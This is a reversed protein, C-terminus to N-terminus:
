LFVRFVFDVHIFPRHCWILASCTLHLGFLAAIYLPTTVLTASLKHCVYYVKKYRDWSTNPHRIKMCLFTQLMRVCQDASNVVQSGYATCYVDHATYQERAEHRVGYTM